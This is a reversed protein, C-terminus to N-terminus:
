RKKAPKKAAPKKVPKKKAAKKKRPRPPPGSRDVNPNDAACILAALASQPFAIEFSAPTSQTFM